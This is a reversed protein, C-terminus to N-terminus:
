NLRDLLKVNWMDQHIIGKSIPCGANSQYTGEEEVLEACTQLAHFYITVFIERDLKQAQWM